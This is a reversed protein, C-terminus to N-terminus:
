RLCYNISSNTISLIQCSHNLSSEFTTNLTWLSPIANSYCLKFCSVIKNTFGKKKITYNLQKTETVPVSFKGPLWLILNMLSYCVLSPVRPGPFIYLSSYHRSIYLSFCLAQFYIFLLMTGPFIYLSAYHRSIYLSFCLAQFYIFLVITGPFIYLSAYHRSIYLSFWLAQFYIFLLM